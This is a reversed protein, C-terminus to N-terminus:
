VWAEIAVWAAVTPYRVWQVVTPVGNKMIKENNEVVFLTWTMQTVNPIVLKLVSIIKKGHFWLWLNHNDIM